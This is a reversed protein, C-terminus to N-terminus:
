EHRMHRCAPCRQLQEAGAETVSAAAITKRILSAQLKEPAFATGCASCRAMDGDNVIRWGQRLQAPALRQVRTIAGEPCTRDCIGCQVCAAELFRLEARSSEDYRIAGTPCVRACTSCLTCRDVNVIITGYPADAALRVPAFDEEPELSALTHSLFPRKTEQPSPTSASAIAPAMDPGSLGHVVGMDDAMTVRQPDDWLAEGVARFIAVRRELLDRTQRPMERPVVLVVRRAGHALAALWLDEGFAALAEVALLVCGPSPAGAQEEDVSHVVLVPHPTSAAALTETMRALLTARDGLRYTLAGTPCALTCAACGQCLHPEVYIRSGASSIAGTDCAEICRTCGTTGFAHHACLTSEYNFYRPKEFGGVLGQALRAIDEHPTEPHPRLYGPPAVAHPILPQESLDVVIDYRGDENPCARDAHPTDIDARYSGLWGELSTVRGQIVTLTEGPEAAGDGHSLVAVVRHGGTLARATVLVAPGDGVVLVAGRSRYEITDRSPLHDTSLPKLTVPCASTRSM